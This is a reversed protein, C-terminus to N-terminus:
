KDNEIKQAQSRLDDQSKKTEASLNDEIQKAKQIM